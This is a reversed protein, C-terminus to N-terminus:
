KLSRDEGVTVVLRDAVVDLGNECKVMEAGILPIQGDTRDTCVHLRSDWM